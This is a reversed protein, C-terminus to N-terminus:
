HKELKAIDEKLQKIQNTLQIEQKKKNSTVNARKDALFYLNSTSSWKEYVRSKPRLTSLEGNLINIEQLEQELKALRDRRTNAELDM